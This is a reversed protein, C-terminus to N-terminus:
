GDADEPLKAEGPIPPPERLEDKVCYPCAGDTSDWGHTRCNPTEEPLAAANSQAPCGYQVKGKSGHDTGCAACPYSQDPLAAALTDDKEGVAKRLEWMLDVEDVSGDRYADLAARALARLQDREEVFRATQEYCRPCEGSLRNHEGRLREVEALLTPINQHAHAIFDGDPDQYDDTGEHRDKDTRGIFLKATSREWNPERRMIGSNLAPVEIYGVEADYVWEGPTTKEWEERIAALEDTTM